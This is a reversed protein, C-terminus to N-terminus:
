TECPPQKISMGALRHPTLESELIWDADAYCDDKKILLWERGTRGRVFRTLAFAGRLKDGILVFSLKGKWFQQEANGVGTVEYTGADWVVVPGAGYQGEPIIGEFEAYEVPHDAVEIALHKEGPRMSPGKPVAWSKLVGGIELRFDYHLNRASHEHVVFRGEGFDM